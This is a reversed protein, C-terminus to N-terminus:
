SNLLKYRIKKLLHFKQVQIKIDQQLKLMHDQEITYFNITIINLPKQMINYIIGIKIFITLSEKVFVHLYSDYKTFHAKVFMLRFKRISSDYKCKLYKQLYKADITGLCSSYFDHYRNCRYCLRDIQFCNCSKHRPKTLNEIPKSAKERHVPVYFRSPSQVAGSENNM